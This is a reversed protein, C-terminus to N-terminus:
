MLVLSSFCFLVERIKERKQICSYDWCSSSVGRLFTKWAQFCWLIAYLFFGRKKKERGKKKERNSFCQKQRQECGTSSSSSKAEILYLNFDQSDLDLGHLSFLSWFWKGNNKSGIYYEHGDSRLWDHSILKPYPRFLTPVNESQGITGLPYASGDSRGVLAASRSLLM